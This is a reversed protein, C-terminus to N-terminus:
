STNEKLKFVIMINTPQETGRVDCVISQPKEYGQGILYGTLKDPLLYSAAYDPSLNRAIKEERPIRLTMISNRLEELNVIDIVGEQLRAVSEQEKKIHDQNKNAFNSEWAGQTTCTRISIVDPKIKIVKEFLSAIDSPTLYDLVGHLSVLRTNDIYEPQIEFDVIDTDGHYKMEVQPYAKHMDIFAQPPPSIDYLHIIPLDYGSLDQEQLAYGVEWTAPGAGLILTYKGKGTLLAKWAEEYLPARELLIHKSTSYVLGSGPELIFDTITKDEKGM